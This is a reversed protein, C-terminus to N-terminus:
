LGRGRSEDAEQEGVEGGAAPRPVQPIALQVAASLRPADLGYAAGFRRPTLFTSTPSITKIGDANIVAPGINPRNETV